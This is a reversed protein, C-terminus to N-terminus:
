PLRLFTIKKISPGNHPPPPPGVMLFFLVPREKVNQAGIFYFYKVDLELEAM